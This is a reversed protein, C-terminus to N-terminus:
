CMSILSRTKTYIASAKSSILLVISSDSYTFILEKENASISLKSVDLVDLPKAQGADLYFSCSNVGLVVTLQHGNEVSNILTTKWASFATEWKDQNDSDDSSQETDRNQHTETNTPAESFIDDGLGESFPRDYRGYREEGASELIGSSNSGDFSESTNPLGYSRSKNSYSQLSVSGFNSSAEEIKQYSEKKKVLVTDQGRKGSVYISFTGIVVVFLIFYIDKKM